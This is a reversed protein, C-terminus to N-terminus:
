INEPEFDATNPREYAHIQTDVHVRERWIYSLYLWLRELWCAYIDCVHMICLIRAYMRIPMCVYMCLVRYMTCMCVDTYSLCHMGAHLCVNMWVYMCVYLKTWRNTKSGVWCCRFLPFSPLYIYASASICMCACGYTHLQTLSHILTHIHIYIYVYICIYMCINFHLIVYTCLYICARQPLPANSNNWACLCVLIHIYIYIYIYIYNCMIAPACKFQEVYMFMGRYKQFSTRRLTHWLTPAPISFSLAMLCSMSLYKHTHTHTHCHWVICRCAHMYAFVCVCPSLSYVYM